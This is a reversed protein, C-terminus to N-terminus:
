VAVMCHLYLTTATGGGGNGSSTDGDSRIQAYIASVSDVSANRMNKVNGTMALYPPMATEVSGTGGQRQVASYLLKMYPSDPSDASFVPHMKVYVSSHSTM